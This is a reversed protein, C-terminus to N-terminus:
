AGRAAYASADASIASTVKNVRKRSGALASMRLAYPSTLVTTTDDGIRQLLFSAPPLQQQEASAAQEAPPEDNSEAKNPTGCEASHMDEAFANAPNAAPDKRKDGNCNSVGPPDRHSNSFSAIGAQKQRKSAASPKKTVRPQGQVLAARMSKTGLVNTDFSYVNCYSENSYEIRDPRPTPQSNSIMGDYLAWIDSNQVVVCTGSSDYSPELSRERSDFLLWSQPVCGDLTEMLSDMPIIASCTNNTEVVYFWRSGPARARRADALIAAFGDNLKDRKGGVPLVWSHQFLVTIPHLDSFEPPLSAGVSGDNGIIRGTVKEVLEPICALPGFGRAETMTNSASTQQSYAQTLFAGREICSRPLTGNEVHDTFGLERILAETGFVLATLLCAVPGFHTGEERIGSHEGLMRQNFHLQAKIELPASPTVLMPLVLGQRVPLDNRSDPAPWGALISAIIEM